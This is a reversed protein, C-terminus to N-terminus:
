SPDFGGCPKIFFDIVRAFESYQIQIFADNDKFYGREM